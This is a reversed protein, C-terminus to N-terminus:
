LGLARNEAQVRTWSLIPAFVSMVSSLDATSGDLRACFVPFCVRMGVGPFCVRMGVGSEKKLSGRCPHLM